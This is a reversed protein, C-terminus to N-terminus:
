SPNTETSSSTTNSNTTSETEESDDVLTSLHVDYEQNQVTFFVVLTILTMTDRQWTESVLKWQYGPLDQGFDGKNNGTKWEETILLENLKNEALSAATLKRDAITEVRNALAIGHLATPIVIAVFVMAALVEAFTFGGERPRAISRDVFNRSCTKEISSM